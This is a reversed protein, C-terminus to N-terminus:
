QQVSVRAPSPFRWSQGQMTEDDVGALAANAAGTVGVYSPNAVLLLDDRGRAGFLTCLAVFTAEQNGVTTLIADDAVDIGEDRRLMEAFIASYPM